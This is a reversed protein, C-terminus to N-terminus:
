AAQGEDIQYLMEEVLRAGAETALVALPSRGAFRQKPKRMWRWARETEGFVGEALATLRALRVTRDSEEQTLAEGKAKRHALTRRPIILEHVEDEALGADRLANLASVPLREEVLALFDRESTLDGVGLREGVLAFFQEAPPMGPTHATAM